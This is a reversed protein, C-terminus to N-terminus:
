APIARGRYMYTMPKPGRGLYGTALETIAFGTEAILADIPRDLHCSVHTWVSDLRRQWRAVNPEPALGHEAFLLQGESRLVRRMERLARRPDPISCLTWTMVITDMSAARFPIAEASAQVLHVPRRARSSDKAARDLLEVSPDLGIVFEVEETYLPLNLGSGIGIELVAGSARPVLGRRYVAVDRNRMARDVLWPFFWHTYPNRMNEGPARPLLRGSLRTSM